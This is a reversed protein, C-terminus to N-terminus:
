LRVEVFSKERLEEVWANMQRELEEQYIEGQIPVLEESSTCGSSVVELSKVRILHFGFETRIPQSLEGAEMSFAAQEFAEVMEGRGFCGLDGDPSGRDASFRGAYEGFDAGEALEERLEQAREEVESLQEGSAGDPIAILIHSACVRQESNVRGARKRELCRRKVDAEKVEVKGQVQFQILRAREIQKRLKKRYESWSMGQSYLATQLQDRDLNNMKQVEQVARDVDADTVGLKEGNAAIEKDIMRDRIEVDLVGRLIELRRAERAEDDQIQELEQRFSGAKEELERLTIVEDEIVAAVRDIVRREAAARPTLAMMVGVSLLAGSLNAKLATSRVNVVCRRSEISQRM